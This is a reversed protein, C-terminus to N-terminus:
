QKHDLQLSIQVHSFHLKEHFYLIFIARFLVESALCDNLHSQIAKQEGFVLTGVTKINLVPKSLFHCNIPLINQSAYRLIRLLFM